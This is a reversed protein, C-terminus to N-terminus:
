TVIITTYYIIDSYTKNLLYVTTDNLMHGICKREIYIHIELNNAEANRSYRLSM